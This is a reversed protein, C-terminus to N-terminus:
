RGEADDNVTVCAPAPCSHTLSHTEVNNIGESYRATIETNLESQSHATM